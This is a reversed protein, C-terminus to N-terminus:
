DSRRVYHLLDVGIDVAKHPDDANEILVAVAYPGADSAPTVGVFWTHPKGEGAVAIGWHGAINDEYRKWNALLESARSPALIARPESVSSPEQWGGV